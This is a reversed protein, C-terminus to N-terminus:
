HDLQGILDDDRRITFGLGTVEAVVEAETAADIVLRPEGMLGEVQDGLEELEGPLVDLAWTASNTPWTEYESPEYRESNEHDDLDEEDESTGPLSLHTMVAARADGYTRVSELTRYDTALAVAFATPLMILNDDLVGYVLDTESVRLSGEANFQHHVSGYSTRHALSVPTGPAHDLLVREAVHLGGVRVTVRGFQADVPLQLVDRYFNTAQGLRDVTITVQRMKM